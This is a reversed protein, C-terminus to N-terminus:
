KQKKAIYKEVVGVPDKDDIWYDPLFGKGEEFNEYYFLRNGYRFCIKSHPLRFTICSGFTCCGFTGSGVRVANKVYYSPSVGMEASSATAKNMVVYLTGNYTSSINKDPYHMRYSKVEDPLETPSPLYAGHLGDENSGNLGEYFREPYDSGGGGNGTLNLIVTDSESCRSGENYYERILDENWPMGYSNHNVLAYGNKFLFRDEDTQTASDSLIRHTKLKKGRVSLFNVKTVSYKGLLYYEDEITSGEGVYLTPLLFERVEDETFFSGKPVDSNENVIVYIDGAKRLIIDTVYAIHKKQFIRMRRCAYLHFHNDNLIPSLERFLFLALTKNSIKGLRSKIKRLITEQIKDCKEDTFFYDYGSYTRKLCHFFDIVDATAQQKTLRRAPIADNYAQERNEYPVYCRRVSDATEKPYTREGYNEYIKRFQERNM